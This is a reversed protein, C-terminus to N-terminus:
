PKIQDFKRLKSLLHSYGEPQEGEFLHQLAEQAIGFGLRRYAEFQGEDFLQDATTEHPFSPHM